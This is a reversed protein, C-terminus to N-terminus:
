NDIKTFMTWNCYYLHGELKISSPSVEVILYTHNEQLVDCWHKHISIVDKKFTKPTYFVTDGVKFPNTSNNM